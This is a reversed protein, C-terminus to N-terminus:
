VEFYYMSIVCFVYQGAVSVVIEEADEVENLKLDVNATLNRAFSEADQSDDLLFVYAVFPITPITPYLMAGEKFGTINGGFGQLNGEKITCIETMFPIEPNVRITEM